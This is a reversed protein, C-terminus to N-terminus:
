LGLIHEYTQLMKGAIVGAKFEKNFRKEGEVGCKLRLEDDVLLKNLAESLAQPDAPPVVLGTSGHRNVWSVGSGPIDTSVVPRGSYMAELQVLGFAETKRVSPLCFVDCATYFSGLNEDEISGLLYVRSTLDLKEIRKELGRKLPGDGGILLYADVRRMAEILYEFGKYYVLRGLSFIIPRGKFTMRINAVKDDSSKLRAPNLGLPILSCKNVYQRLHRSNDLYNQSTLIILDARKLLWDQLPKYLALLVRQKLIDSHWHIILKTKPRALYYALNAMPNPLHVHIIDYQGGLQRLRRVMTPSVSTSFLTGLSGCRIVKQSDHIDVATKFATNACLVDCHIRRSLEEVLDFVFLEIGGVKPPYFKSLHLVRM